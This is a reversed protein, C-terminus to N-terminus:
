SWTRHKEAIWELGHYKDIQWKVNDPIEVIRLQAYEGFSEERLEEIVQILLPLDRPVDCESVHEKPNLGWDYDGWEEYPIDPIFPAHGLEELKAKAKASLGFGGYCTNIVIKKM